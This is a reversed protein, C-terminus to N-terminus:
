GSKLLSFLQRSDSFLMPIAIRPATGTDLVVFGNASYVKKIDSRRITKIVRGYKFKVTESDVVVDASRLEWIAGCGIAFFIAGFGFISLRGSPHLNKVLLGLCCIGGVMVFFLSLLLYCFRSARFRHPLSTVEIRHTPRGVLASYIAPVGYLVVFIGALTLLTTNM